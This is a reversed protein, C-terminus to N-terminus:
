GFLLKYIGAKMFDAVQGALIVSRWRTVKVDELRGDMWENVWGDMSRNIWGDM